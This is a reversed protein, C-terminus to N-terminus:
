RSFVRAAFAEIEPGSIALAIPWPRGPEPLIRVSALEDSEGVLKTLNLLGANGPHGQGTVGLIAVESFAQLESKSIAAATM